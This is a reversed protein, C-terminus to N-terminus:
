FPWARSAQEDCFYHSRLTCHTCYRNKLVFQKKQTNWYLKAMVNSENDMMIMPVRANFLWFECLEPKYRARMMEVSNEVM